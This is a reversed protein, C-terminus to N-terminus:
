YRVSWLWCSVYTNLGCCHYFVFPIEKNRKQSRMNLVSYRYFVTWNYHLIDSSEMAFLFWRELLQCVVVKFVNCQWLKAVLLFIALMAYSWGLTITLFCRYFLCCCWKTAYRSTSACGSLTKWVNTCCLRAFQRLQGFKLCTTQLTSTCTSIDLLAQKTLAQFLFIEWGSSSYRKSKFWTCIRTGKFVTDWCSCTCHEKNINVNFDSWFKQLILIHLAPLFVPVLLAICQSKRSAGNTPATLMM